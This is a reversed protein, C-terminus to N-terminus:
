LYAQFFVFTIRTMSKLTFSFFNYCVQGGEQVLVSTQNKAVVTRIASGFSPLLLLHLFILPTMKTKLILLINKTNPIFPAMKTNPYSSSLFHDTPTM